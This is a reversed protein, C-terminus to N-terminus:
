AMPPDTRRFMGGRTRRLFGESELAALLEEAHWPRVDLLRATQSVTLTLGPM